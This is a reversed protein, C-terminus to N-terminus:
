SEPPHEVEDSPASQPPRKEVGKRPVVVAGRSLREFICRQSAIACRVQRLEALALLGARHEGPRPEFGFTRTSFSGVLLTSATVSLAIKSDSSAKRRSRFRASITTLWRDSSTDAAGSVRNVHVPERADGGGAAEVGDSMRRNKEGGRGWEKGRTAPAGIAWASLHFCLLSRPSRRNRPARGRNPERRRDHAEDEAKEPEHSRSFFPTGRPPATATRRVRPRRAVPELQVSGSPVRPDRRCAAGSESREHHRQGGREKQGRMSLGPWSARCDGRSRRKRPAAPVRAM